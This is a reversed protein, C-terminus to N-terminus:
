VVSKRDIYDINLEDKAGGHMIDDTAEEDEDDFLINYITESVDKNVVAKEEEVVVREIIEQAEELSITPKDDVVKITKIKQIFEPSVQQQTLLLLTNIYIPITTLYLINDIGEITFTITSNSPEVSVTTKFGTHQRTKFRYQELDNAVRIIVDNAEDSSLSFINILEQKVEVVNMRAKIAEIAFIEQSTQKSYNAVRTFRYVTNAVDYSNSIFASSVFQSYPKVNFKKQITAVLQYTISQTALTTSAIPNGIIDSVRELIPQAISMIMPEIREPILWDTFQIKFLLTGHETLECSCLKTGDLHIFLHIRSTSNKIGKSIKYVNVDTKKYVRCMSGYVILPLNMSSQYARFLYPLPFHKVTTSLECQIYQIGSNTPYLTTPEHFLAIAKNVPEKQVPEELEEVYVDTADMTQLLVSYPEPQIFGGTPSLIWLRIDVNTILKRKIETWTDDIYVEITKHTAQKSPYEFISLTASMNYYVDLFLTLKVVIITDWGAGSSKTWDREVQKVSFM